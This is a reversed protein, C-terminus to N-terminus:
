RLKRQLPLDNVCVLNRQQPVENVVMVERAEQLQLRVVRQQLIAQCPHQQRFADRHDVIACCRAHPSACLAVPVPLAEPLLRVIRLRVQVAENAREALSNNTRTCDSWGAHTQSQRVNSVLSHKHQQRCPFQGTPLVNM